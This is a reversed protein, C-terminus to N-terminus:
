KKLFLSSISNGCIIAKGINELFFRRVRLGGANESTTYPSVAAEFDVRGVPLTSRASDKFRCQTESFAKGRLGTCRGDAWSTYIYTRAVQLLHGLLADDDAEAAALSDLHKKPVILAHVPAQPNIDLFAFTQEDEYIKKSPITGNVIKCFLCDMGDLM